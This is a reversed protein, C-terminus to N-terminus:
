CNILVSATVERGSMSVLSVAAINYCFIFVLILEGGGFDCNGDLKLDGVDAKFDDPFNLCDEQKM